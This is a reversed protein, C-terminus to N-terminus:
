LIKESLSVFPELFFKLRGMEESLNGEQSGSM